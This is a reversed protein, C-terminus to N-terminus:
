VEDKQHRMDTMMTDGLCACSFDSVDFNDPLINLSYHLYDLEQTSNIGTLVGRVRPHSHSMWVCLDRVTHCKGRMAAFMDLMHPIWAQPIPGALVGRLWISRVFVPVPCKEVVFQRLPSYEVCVNECQSSASVADALGYTNVMPHLAHPHDGYTEGMINMYEVLAPDLDYAERIHYKRCGWMSAMDIINKAENYSVRKPRYGYLDRGWASSGLITKGLDM